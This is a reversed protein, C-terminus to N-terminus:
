IYYNFGIINYSDNIRFLKLIVEDPYTKRARVDISDERCKVEYAVDHVFVDFFVLPLFTTVVRYM